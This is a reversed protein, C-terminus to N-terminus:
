DEDEDDIPPEPMKVPNVSKFTTLLTQADQNQRAFDVFEKITSITTESVQHEMSCADEVALHEPIGLIQLLDNIISYNNHVSEAIEEGKKTLTIKGYKEYDLYGEDAMRKVAESVSSLSRNMSAAIASIRAKGRSQQLIYIRKLYNETTESHEPEKPPLPKNEMKIKDWYVEHLIGNFTNSKRDNGKNKFNQVFSSTISLM